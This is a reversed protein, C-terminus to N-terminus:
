SKALLLQTCLKEIQQVTHDWTYSFRALEQAETGLRVRLAPDTMIRHLATSLEEVDGPEVLLANNEDTLIPHRHNKASMVVAKGAAMYEFVKLGTSERWDVYPAVAVDAISVYDAVQRKPLLGTLCVTSELGLGNLMSAVKEREPGDGILIMSADPIRSRVTSFARVLVDLGSWPFFGGVFVIICGASVGFRQRLEETNRRAAFLEFDAGNQIITIKSADGHWSREIREKLARDVTVTHSVKAFMIRTLGRIVAWQSRSLKIDYRRYEEVVDGNVEYVLPIGLMRAALLGGYGMLGYREYLIDFGTLLQLCADAFHVSDFFRCYPLQLSSQLKRVPREVAKFWLSHTRLHALRQWNVLDDTWQIHGHQIAVTRVTHGQKKLGEIISTVHAQPGSINGMKVADAQMLYGIKM